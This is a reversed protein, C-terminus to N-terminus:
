NKLGERLVTVSPENEQNGSVRYIGPTSLNPSDELIQVCDVVIKPVYKEELDKEVTELNSGFFDEETLEKPVEVRELVPSATKSSKLKFKVKM